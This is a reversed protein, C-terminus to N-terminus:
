RGKGRQFLWGFLGGFLGAFWGFPGVDTWNALSLWDEKESPEGTPKNNMPRDM